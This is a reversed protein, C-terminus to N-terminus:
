RDSEEIYYFIVITYNGHWDSQLCILVFPLKSWMFFFFLPSLFLGHVTVLGDM